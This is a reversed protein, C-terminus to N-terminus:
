VTGIFALDNAYCSPLSKSTVPAIKPHSPLSENEFNM